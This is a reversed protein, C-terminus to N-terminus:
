RVRELPGTILAVHLNRQEPDRPLPMPAKIVKLHRPSAMKQILNRVWTLIRM